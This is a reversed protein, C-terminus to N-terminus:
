MATNVENTLSWMKFFTNRFFFKPWCFLYSSLSATTSCIWKNRESRSRPVTMPRSETSVITRAVSTSERSSSVFIHCREQRWMNRRKERSLCNRKSNIPMSPFSDSVSALFWNIEFACGNAWSLWRQNNIEQNIYSVIQRPSSSMAGRRGRGNGNIVVSSFQILNCIDITSRSVKMNLSSRCIIEQKGKLNVMWDYSIGDRRNEGLVSVSCLCPILNRWQPSPISRTWRSVITFQSLSSNCLEIDREILEVKRQVM